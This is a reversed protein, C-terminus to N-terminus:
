PKLGLAADLVEIFRTRRLSGHVEVRAVFASLNAEIHHVEAGELAALDSAAPTLLRGSEPPPTHREPTMADYLDALPLASSPFDDVLNIDLGDAEDDVLALHAVPAVAPQARREDARRLVRELLGELILM